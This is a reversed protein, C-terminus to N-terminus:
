ISNMIKFFYYLLLYLFTGTFINGYYSESSIQRKAMIENVKQVLPGVKSSYTSELELKKAKSNLIKEENDTIALDIHKMNELVELARSEVTKGQCELCSYPEENAELVHIECKPIGKFVHFNYHNLWIYNILLCIM